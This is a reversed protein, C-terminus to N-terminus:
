ATEGSGDPSGGATLAVKARGPYLRDRMALFPKDVLAGMIAGAVAALPIYITQAVTYVVLPSGPIHTSIYQMPREAFDPHWIYVAYSNFGIWAILKIPWSRAARGGAGESVSIYVMSLVLLGYGAYLMTFGITWVFTSRIPDLVMMPSVLVAGLACLWVRHRMLRALKQGHYSYVYALLVGFFLGDMRVHTSWVHTPFSFPVHTNILLRYGTCLIIVALGAYPTLHVGGPRRTVYWLWIPFLLYFHEEVALSWTHAIPRFTGAYNQLHVFNPLMVQLAPAPHGHFRVIELGTTAIVLLAYSPWIKFGRRILFRKLDLRDHKLLERFLLGGILFGSLVFFLDVGTWGFRHWIQAPLPWSHPARDWNVAPHDGLVLLIAVGRLVDLWILRDPAQRGRVPREAAESKGPTASDM